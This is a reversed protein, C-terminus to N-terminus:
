SMIQPELFLHPRLFKVTWVFLFSCLFFFLASFMDLGSERGSHHIELRICLPSIGSQDSVRSRDKHGMYMDMFASLSASSDTM